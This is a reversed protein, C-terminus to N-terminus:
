QYHKEDAGVRAYFCYTRRPCAVFGVTAFWLLMKAVIARRLITILRSLGTEPSMVSQWRNYFHCDPCVAKGDAICVTAPNNARSDNVTAPAAGAKNAYLKNICVCRSGTEGQRCSSHCSVQLAYIRRSFLRLSNTICCLTHLLKM